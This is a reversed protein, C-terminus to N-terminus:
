QRGLGLYWGMQRHIITKLEAEKIDEPEKTLQQYELKNLFNYLIRADVEPDIDNFLCCIKMLPGLLKEEHSTAIKRLDPLLRIETFLVQEVALHVRRNIVKDYIYSAAMDSGKLCLDAINETTLNNVLDKSPLLVDLMEWYEEFDDRISFCHIFAEKILQQIDKFYYTTLSLPIDAKRAIARHTTGKIGLEAILEITSNLILDRTQKGKASFIKQTM